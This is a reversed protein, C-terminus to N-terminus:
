LGTPNFLVLHTRKKHTSLLSSLSSLSYCIAGTMSMENRQSKLMKQNIVRACKKELYFFYTEQYSLENLM